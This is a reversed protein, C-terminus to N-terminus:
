FASGSFPLGDGCSLIKSRRSPEHLDPDHSGHRSGVPIEAEEPLRDAVERLSAAKGQLTEEAELLAVLMGSRYDSFDSNGQRAERIERIVEVADSLGQRYGWLVKPSLPYSQLKQLAELAAEVDDPSSNQIGKAILASLNNLSIRQM